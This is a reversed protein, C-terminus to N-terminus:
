IFINCCSCRRNSYTNCIYAFIEEQNNYNQDASIKSDMFLLHIILEKKVHKLMTILTVYDNLM